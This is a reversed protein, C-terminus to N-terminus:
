RLTGDQNIKDFVVKQSADFRDMAAKVKDAEAANGQARLGQEKTALGARKTLADTSHFADYMTKRGAATTKGASRKDLAIELNSSDLHFASGGQLDLEEDHRGNPGVLRGTAGPDSMIEALSDAKLGRITDASLKKDGKAGGM